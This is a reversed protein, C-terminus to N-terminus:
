MKLKLMETGAMLFAGSGYEQNQEATVTEPKAGIQQVHTLKGDPTVANTLAKWGKQVAPLYVSKDLQGNNVGWALAFTYFSSGSTEMVPVEDPDLLSARWLGDPQQLTVLKAAMKKYLDVYQQYYANSKPLRELVQVLGGMVWGNGRSWFLKKGNPAKRDFFSKDRYYLSEEKDFLFDTADWWMTNLYDNYKENGTIQALRVLVPPEMFLADCWWWDERGTLPSAMLSDVRDKIGTLMKPDKKAVYADLFSQGKALDDAHRFREGPQWHQSDGYVITGNLYTEDGTANYARMAGSYFAARAWDNVNKLNIDVPNNSQWTFVKKMINKVYIESYIEGGQVSATSSIKKSCSFLLGIAFLFTFNRVVRKM